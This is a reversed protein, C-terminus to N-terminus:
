HDNRSTRIPIYPPTPSLSLSLSVSYFLIIHTLWAYHLITFNSIINSRSAGGRGPRGHHCRSVLVFVFLRIGAGRSQYYKPPAHAFFFIGVANVIVASYIYTGVCVNPRWLPYLFVSARPPYACKTNTRRTPTHRVPAPLRRRDDLPRRPTSLATFFVKPGPHIFVFFPVRRLVFM